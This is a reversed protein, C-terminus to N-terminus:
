GNLSVVRYEGTKKNKQLKQTNADFKPISPTNGESQDQNNDGGIFNVATSSIARKRIDLNTQLQKLGSELQSVGYAPNLIDDALKFAGDRPVGGGQFSQALEDKMLNIQTIYKTAVDRKTPDTGTLALTLETKNAPTWGVRQFDQSIKQLEPISQQVSNLAQTLRVQQPNNLTKALAQTSTWDTSAKTLDFGKTALYAKIAASKGYLRTMDPPQEGSIIADGIAKVEEPEAQKNALTTQKIARTLDDQFIDPALMKGIAMTETPALGGKRLQDFAKISAAIADESLGQKTMERNIKDEMANIITNSQVSEEQKKRRENLALFIKNSADEAGRQIDEIAM